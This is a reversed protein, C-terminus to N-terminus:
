STLQRQATALADHVEPVSGFMYDRFRASHQGLREIFSWGFVGIEDAARLTPVVSEGLGFTEWLVVVADYGPRRDISPSALHATLGHDLSTFFASFKAQESFYFAPLSEKGCVSTLPLRSGQQSV